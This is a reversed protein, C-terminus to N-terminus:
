ARARYLLSPLYSELGTELSHHIKFPSSSMDAQTFYQYGHKYPNPIIIKEPKKKIHGKLLLLDALIDALAEFSRCEGSGLNYIGPELSAATINATTVDDIYVFDRLAEGSGEFLTLKGQKLVQLAFNCAMSATHLKFFEGPGYVNFYRLAVCHVEKQSFAINEMMKKSFGYFTQPIAKSSAKAPSLLDGYVSASSAFIVRAGHKKAVELINYFSNTNVELLKSKDESRSDSIAAFHYILEPKFSDILDFCSAYRIDSCYIKGKFGKLNEWNGFSNSAGFDDLVLLEHEDHLAMALNSGIFGAGGTIVIKM